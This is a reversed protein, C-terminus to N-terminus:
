NPNIRAAEDLLRTEVLCDGIALQHVSGNLPWRLEPQPDTLNFIARHVAGDAAAAAEGNAVLNGTIRLETRGSAAILAVLFSTLVLMWLVVLLAFGQDSGRRAPASTQAPM